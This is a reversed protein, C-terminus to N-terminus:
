AREAHCHAQEMRLQLVRGDASRRAGEEGREGPVVRDLRPQALGPQRLECRGHQCAVRLCRLGEVGTRLEQRRQGGPVRAVALEEHRGGVVGLGQQRRQALPGVVEPQVLPACEHQAVQGHAHRLAHGRNELLTAAAAAGRGVAAAAGRGLAEPRCYAGRARLAGAQTLQARGEGQGAGAQANRGGDGPSRSVQVCERQQRAGRGHTGAM